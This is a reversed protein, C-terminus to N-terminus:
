TSSVVRGNKIYKRDLGPTYLLCLTLTTKKVQSAYNRNSAPAFLKTYKTKQNESWSGSKWIRFFLKELCFIFVM